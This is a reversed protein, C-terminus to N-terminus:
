TRAWSSPLARISPSCAAPASYLTLLGGLLLFSITTLFSDPDFSSFFDLVAQNDGLHMDIGTQRLTGLGLFMFSIGFLFDGIYRKKKSYILIIAIFFAPYVFDTINFSFGASMIWATLTTGINAGMIVSIAQALTLLGANVFSVTMVTTATSSQVAATVFMGTLMGTFRNTTMAQLVHRLQSGAMKQLSESMSKMGFMLLALSGILKFLIWVSM